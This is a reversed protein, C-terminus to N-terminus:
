FLYNMYNSTMRDLAAGSVNTHVLDTHYLGASGPYQPGPMLASHDFFMLTSDAAVVEQMVKRYESWASAMPLSISVDYPMSVVIPCTLGAARFSAIFGELKTKFVSANQNQGAVRGDNIPFDQLILLDLSPMQQAISAVPNPNVGANVVQWHDIAFASTGLNHVTITKQVAPDAKFGEAGVLYVGGAADRGIELTTVPGPIVLKAYSTAVDNTAFDVAAGGDVKYYGSNAGGGTGKYMHVVVSHTMAEPWTFNLFGNDLNAIFARHKPGMSYTLSDYGGLTRVVPWTGLLSMGDSPIGLFGNQGSINGYRARLQVGLQNPISKDFTGYLGEVISAGVMGIDVRETLVKRMIQKTRLQNMSPSAKGQWGVRAMLDAISGASSLGFDTCLSALYARQRDAFSGTYGLSGYFAYQDDAYSPM